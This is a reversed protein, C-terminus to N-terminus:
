ERMPQVPWSFGSLFLIHISTFLLAMLASVRERFLHRLCLALCITALLFPLLFFFLEWLDTRQPYRYIRFLIGFFWVIHLCYLPLYVLIRGLTRGTASSNQLAAAARQRGHSSGYSLPLCEHFTGLHLLDPHLTRILQGTMTGLEGLEVELPANM